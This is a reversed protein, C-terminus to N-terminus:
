QNVSLYGLLLLHLNNKEFKHRLVRKFNFYATKLAKQPSLRTLIHLKDLLPNLVGKLLNNKISM